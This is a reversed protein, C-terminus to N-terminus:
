FHKHFASIEFFFVNLPSLVLISLRLRNLFRICRDHSRLILKEESVIGFKYLIHCCNELIYKFQNHICLGIPYQSSQSANPFKRWHSRGTEQFLKSSMRLWNLKRYFKTRQM